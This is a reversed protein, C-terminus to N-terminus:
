GVMGNQISRWHRYKATMEHTGVRTQNKLLFDIVRWECLWEDLWGSYNEPHSTLQAHTRGALVAEPLIYPYILGSETTAILVLAVPAASAQPSIYWQWRPYLLKEITATPYKSIKHRTRYTTDAHKVRVHVSEVRIDYSAGMFGSLIPRHGRNSLQDFTYGVADFENTNEITTTM